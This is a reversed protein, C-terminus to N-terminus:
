IHHAWQPSKRVTVVPRLHGQDQEVICATRNLSRLVKQLFDKTTVLYECCLAHLETDRDCKLAHQRTHPVFGERGAPQVTSVPSSHRAHIDLLQRWRERTRTRLSAVTAESAAKTLVEENVPLSRMVM